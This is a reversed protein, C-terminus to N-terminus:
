YCFVFRVQPQSGGKSRLTRVSSTIDQLFGSEPSKEAQFTKQKGGNAQGRPLVVEVEDSAEDESTSPGHFSQKM